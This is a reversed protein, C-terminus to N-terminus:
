EESPPLADTNDDKIYEYINGVLNHFKIEFEYFRIKKTILNQYQIYGIYVIHIAGKAIGDIQDKYVIPDFTFLLTVPSGNVVYRNVGREQGVKLKFFDEYRPDIDGVQYIISAKAELIKAPYKGLNIINWPFSIRGGPKLSDMGPITVELYSDNAIAFEDRAEEIAQVSVKLSYIAVAFLLFTCAALIANIIDARPWGKKSPPNPPITPEIKMEETKHDQDEQTSQENAKTEVPNINKKAFHFHSKSKQRRQQQSNRHKKDM